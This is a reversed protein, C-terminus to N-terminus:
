WQGTHCGGSSGTAKCTRKMEGSATRTITFVDNSSPAVATVVYGKGSEFEEAKSLYANNGGETTQIEPEYAHLAKVDIGVYNGSHETEYTEAALAATRALEKATADDGKSKQDLFAPIAIAALIGIILIVVLLEILSFGSEDTLHRSVPRM